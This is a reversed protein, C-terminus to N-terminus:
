SSSTFQFEIGPIERLVELGPLNWDCFLIKLYKLDSLCSVDVTVYAMYLSQLYQLEALPSIDQILKCNWLILIELNLVMLPTLDVVETYGLDLYVLKTLLSLPALDTIKTSSVVLKELAYLTSFHQLTVLNSSNHLDLVRLNSLQSLSSLVFVSTSSIQLKDLNRLNQLFKLNTVFTNSLLLVKLESLRSLSSLDGVNTNDLNLYVLNKLFSLPSIDEVLTDALILVKLSTSYKLFDLSELSTMSADLVQLNEFMSFSFSFNHTPVDFLKVFHVSRLDVVNWWNSFVSMSASVRIPTAKSLFHLWNNSNSILEVSSTNSAILDSLQKFRLIYSFREKIHFKANLRILDAIDLHSVTTLSLPLRVSIRALFVLFLARFRISVSKFIPNVDDIYLPRFFSRCQSYSYYPLNHEDVPSNVAICKIHSVVSLFTSSQLSISQTNVSPLASSPVLLHDHRQTTAKMLDQVTEM